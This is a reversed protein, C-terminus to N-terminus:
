QGRIVQRVQADKAEVDVVLDGGRKELYNKAGYNVRWCTGNDTQSITILSNEADIGHERAELNAAAMVRALTVAIADHLVDSNLIASM